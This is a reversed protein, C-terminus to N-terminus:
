KITIHTDTEVGSIPKAAKITFWPTPMIFNGRYHATVSIPFEYKGPPLIPISLTVQHPKYNYHIPFSLEKFSQTSDPIVGSLLPISLTLHKIPRVATVTVKLKTKEGFILHKRPLTTTLNLAKKRSYQDHYSWDIMGFLSTENSNELEINGISRRIWRRPYNLYFRPNKGLTDSKFYGKKQGLTVSPTRLQGTREPLLLLPYLIDPAYIEKKVLDKFLTEILDPIEPAEPNIELAAELLIAATQPRYKKNPILIKQLLLKEQDIKKSRNIILTIKGRQEPTCKKLEKGSPLSIKNIINLANPLYSLIYAYEIKTKLSLSVPKLQKQYHNIIFSSLHNQKPFHHYIRALNRYVMETDEPTNNSEPIWGWGTKNQFNEVKKISHSRFLDVLLATLQQPVSDRQKLPLLTTVPDPSININFHHHILTKSRYNLLYSILFPKITDGRLILPYREQHIFKQPAIKVEGTIQTATEPTKLEFTYSLQKFQDPIELSWNLITEGKKILTVHQRRNKIKLTRNIIKGSSRLTLSAVAHIIKDSQNKITIPIELQDGSHLKKPFHVHASLQKEILVPINRYGYQFLDSYSFLYLNWKGETQPTNFKLTLNGWSDAKMHNFLLPTQKQTNQQTKNHKHHKKSVHEKKGTQTLWKYHEGTWIIDPTLFPPMLANKHHKQRNKQSINRLPILTIEPQYVPNVFLYPSRGEPYLIGIVEGPIPQDKQDTINLKLRNKQGPLLTSQLEIPNIKLQKESPISIIRQKFLHYGNTDIVTIFIDLPGSHKPQTPIELYDIKKKSRIMQQSVIQNHYSYEQIITHQQEPLTLRLKISKGPSIITSQPKLCYKKLCTKPSPAKRNSVIKNGIMIPFSGHPTNLRYIGDSLEKSLPIAGVIGGNQDTIIQQTVLEVGKPSTLTLTMPMLPVATMTEPQEKIQDILIGQYLLKEGPLYRRKPTFLKFSRILLPIKQQHPTPLILQRMEKQTGLTVLANLQETPDIMDITTYPINIIGYSDSIVPKELLKQSKRFLQLSINPIPKRATKSFVQYRIGPLNNKHILIVDSVTFVLTVLPMKDKKQDFGMLFYRGSKLSKLSITTETKQIGEKKPLLYHHTRLPEKYRFQYLYQKLSKQPKHNKIHYIKLHLQKINRAFITLPIPQNPTVIEPLTLQIKKHQLSAILQNCYPILRFDPFMKKLGSCIKIVKQKQHEDGKKFYYQALQYLLPAAHPTAEYTVLLKKLNTQFCNEIEPDTSHSMLYNFYTLYSQIIGQHDKKKGNLTILQLYYQIILKPISNHTQNSQVTPNSATESCFPLKQAPITIIKSEPLTKLATIARYLLLHYTTPAYQNNKILTKPLPTMDPKILSTKYHRLGQKIDGKKFYLEGLLSHIINQVTKSTTKLDQNLIKILDVKPDLQHHYKVKLLMGKLVLARKKQRDYQKIKQNLLTFAEKSNGKQYQKIVNQYPNHDKTISKNTSEPTKM